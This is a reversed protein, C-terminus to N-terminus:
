AAVAAAQKVFQVEAFIRVEDSVVVGGAETVAGWSVGFDKRNLTGTVSFGIKTQGYPDTVVPSAEVKLTILKSVGRMTLTGHLRYNETDIMELRDGDFSLQPYNAQDFFDGSLLHADRQESNTTISDIDATFHVKAITLDDGNTEITGAFKRFSGTVNTIMLHRVKFQIESHSPDLVWTTSAM